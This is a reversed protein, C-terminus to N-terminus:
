GRVCTNSPYVYAEYYFFLFYFDVFSSVTDKHLHQSIKNAERVLLATRYLDKRSSTKGGSSDSMAAAPTRAPTVRPTGIRQRREELRLVDERIKQKEKELQEVIRSHNIRSQSVAKQAAVAELQLRKRNALVEQELM